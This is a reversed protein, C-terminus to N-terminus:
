SRSRLSRRLAVLMPLGLALLFGSSPEPITSFTNSATDFSGLSGVLRATAPLTEDNDFDYGAIGTISWGGSLDIGVGTPIKSTVSGVVLYESSSKVYLYPNFGGTEFSFPKTELAGYARVFTGDAVSSGAYTQAEVNSSNIFKGFKFTALSFFKADLATIADSGSMGPTLLSGIQADDYATTATSSAAFYGLYGVVDEPITVGASTKFVSETALNFSVSAAFGNSAGVSLLAALAIHKLHNKM